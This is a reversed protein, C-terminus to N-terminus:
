TSLLIPSVNQEAGCDCLADKGEIIFALKKFNAM